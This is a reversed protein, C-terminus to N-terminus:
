RSREPKKRMPAWGALIPPCNVGKRMEYPSVGERDPRFPQLTASVVSFARSCSVLSAVEAMQFLMRRSHSIVKAGIKILKLQTARIGLNGFILVILSM